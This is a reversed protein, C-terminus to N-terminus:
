GRDATGHDHPPTVGLSHLTTQLHAELDSLLLDGKRIVDAIQGSLLRRDESTMDRGTIVVIPTRATAPHARLRAIFEFGSMGPMMLDTIVARPPAQAAMRLGAEGSAASRVPFGAGRLATTLLQRISQEDDVVLVHTERAADRADVSQLASLLRESEVPKVLYDTAGLRYGLARNDVISCVIVPIDATTPNSRLAQLVRWGDMGPMMVDLLIAAPVLTRALRLGNLGDVAVRVRYGASRTTEALITAADIDDEVILVLPPEGQGVEGGGPLEALLPMAREDPAPTVPAAEPPAMLPITVAFTSGENLQSTVEIRGGLLEVIQRVIFLGLGAGGAARTSSGDVQRFREFIFDLAQEDIGVGTDRVELRFSHADVAYLEAEVFGRSTFKLANSLLNTVVQRLRVPDTFALPLADRV